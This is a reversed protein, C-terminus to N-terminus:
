FVIHLSAYPRFQKGFFRRGLGLDLYPNITAAIGVFPGRAGVGLDAHVLSLHDPRRLLTVAQWQLAPTVLID